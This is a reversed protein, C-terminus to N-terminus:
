LGGGESPKEDQLGEQGAIGWSDGTCLSMQFDRRSVATEMLREAAEKLWLCEGWRSQAQSLAGYSLQKFIFTLQILELM